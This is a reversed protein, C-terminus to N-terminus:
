SVMIQDETAAHVTLMLGSGLTGNGFPTLLNLTTDRLSHRKTSSNDKLVKLQGVYTTMKRAENCAYSM